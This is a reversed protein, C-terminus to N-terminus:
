VTNGKIIVRLVCENQKRNLSCVHKIGNRRRRADLRQRHKRWDEHAFSKVIDALEICARRQNVFGPNWRFLPYICTVFLSTYQHKSLKNSASLSWYENMTNDGCYAGQGDNKPSTQWEIIWCASKINMYLTVVHACQHTVSENLQQQTNRICRWLPIKLDTASFWMYSLCGSQDRTNTSHYHDIDNWTWTDYSWFM